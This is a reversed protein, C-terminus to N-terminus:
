CRHTFTKTLSDNHALYVSWPLVRFELPVAEGGGPGGQGKVLQLDNDEATPVAPDSPSMEGGRRKPRGGTRQSSSLTEEVMVDLVSGM